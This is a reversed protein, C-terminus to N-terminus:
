PVPVGIAKLRAQARGARAKLGDVVREVHEVPPEDARDFGRESGEARVECVSREVFGDVGDGCDPRVRAGNCLGDQLLRTARGGDLAVEHVARNGGRERLSVVSTRWRDKAVDDLECEEDRRARLPETAGRGHESLDVVREGALHRDHDADLHPVLLPAQEDGGWAVRESAGKTALPADDHEVRVDLQM